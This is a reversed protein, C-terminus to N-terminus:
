LSNAAVFDDALVERFEVRVFVPFGALRLPRQLGGLALAPEFFFAPADALVAATEPGVDDDVRDAVISALQDAVGLDGAVDGLPFISLFLEFARALGQQLGLLHLRDPLEGAPDGM